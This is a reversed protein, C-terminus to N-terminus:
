AAVDTKKKRVDIFHSLAVNFAIFLLAGAAILVNVNVSKSLVIFLSSIAVSAVVISVM